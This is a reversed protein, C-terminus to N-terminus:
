DVLSFKIKILDLLTHLADRVPRLRSNESHLWTIPLELTKYHSKQARVLIEIDFGFRNTNLKSFLEKAVASKFLKFGCQTDQIHKVLFSQIILNGVRGILIRFKSQKREILSKPLYRSGIIIDFNDINKIFNDLENIRTSNDADMFLILDGKAAEIGTKVAFGKGRNQKYRILKASKIVKSTKDTSGDDIVIVESKFNKRRLYDNVDSLTAPLRKEENYAPIIVSLRM